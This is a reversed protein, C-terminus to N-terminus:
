VAIEKTSMIIGLPSELLKQEDRLIDSSSINIGMHECKSNFVRFWRKDQYTDYDDKLSSLVGMVAPLYISNLLVTKGVKNGRLTKIKNYTNTNALIKIKHGEMQLRIECDPVDDSKAISFITEM